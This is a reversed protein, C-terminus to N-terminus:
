SYKWDLVSEPKTLTAEYFGVQRQKTMVVVM